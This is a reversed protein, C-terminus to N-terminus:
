GARLGRHRGEIGHQGLAARDAAARGRRAGAVSSASFTATRVHPFQDRFAREVAAQRDALVLGVGPGSAATAEQEASATAARLREGIRASFALLFAHRFRRPTDFAPVPEAVMTRAAHVALAGFLTRVSALEAPHGVMVCRQRGGGEAGLVAKCRNAAAVTALLAAKATAYPAEVVVTETEAEPAAAGRRGAAAVMADDIAHRAMLEQAKAVLAEAEDPFDTSEAKALLGLVRSMWAEPPNAPPSITM